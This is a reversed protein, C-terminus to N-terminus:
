QSSENTEDWSGIYGDPYTEQKPYSAKQGRSHRGQVLILEVIQKEKGNDYM